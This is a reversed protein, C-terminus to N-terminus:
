GLKVAGFGLSRDPDKPTRVTEKKAGAIATLSTLLKEKPKRVTVRYRIRNRVTLGYSSLAKARSQAFCGGSAM